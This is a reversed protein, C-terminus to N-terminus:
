WVYLEVILELDDETFNFGKSNLKSLFDNVNKVIDLYKRGDVIWAYEISDSRSYCSGFTIYECPSNEDLFESVSFEYDENWGLIKLHEETIRIGIGGEADYDVGM